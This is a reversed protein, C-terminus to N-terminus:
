SNLLEELGEEMTSDIDITEEIDDEMTSHIDLMEEIGEEMTSDISSLSADFSEFQVLEEKMCEKLKEKCLRLKEELAYTESEQTMIIWELSHIVEQDYVQKQEALKRYQNAEIELSGKERQLRLIMSMAEDAASAAAMREKELEAYAMISKLREIKVMRRLAIVDFEEDEVCREKEYDDDSDDGDPNVVDKQVLSNDDVKPKPNGLLILSGCKCPPTKSDCVGDFVNKSCFGKRLSRSKGRVLFLFRVLGKGHSTFGGRTFFKLCSAYDMLFTGSVVEVVRKYLEIVSCVVVFLCFSRLVRM